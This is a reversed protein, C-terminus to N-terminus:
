KKLRGLEANVAEVRGPIEDAARKYAELLPTRKAPDPERLAAQHATWAALRAAMLADNCAFLPRLREPVDRTALMEERVRRYPAIVDRELLVDLEADTIKGAKHQAYAETMKSLSSKEVADFRGLLPAVGPDAKITMVGAATLAIGLAALGLARRTRVQTTGAGALLAAGVAIGVVLGGIHASLSIGKASLGVIANLALFTGLRRMTKSWAEPEFEARHMVFKAGLAGYVGFVAGSAGASVVNGPNAILSAIGGGLGALVYIVVFGLRGFVPEVARAQYLCLMNMALHLVGFHLFMSSGLRWWEGHLTLSPYNGGLEVIVQPGPQIPDAGAALEVAFMAVNAAILGYLVWPQPRRESM